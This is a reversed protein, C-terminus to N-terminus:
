YAPPPIPSMAVSPHTDASQKIMAGLLYIYSATNSLMAKLKSIIVLVVLYYANTSTSSLFMLTHMQLM